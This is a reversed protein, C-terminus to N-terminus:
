LKPLLLTMGPLGLATEMHRYDLHSTLFDKIARHPGCNYGSADDQYFTDHVILPAHPYRKHIAKLERLVSAYEHDGDLFFFPRVVSYDRAYALSTTVGDGLLQTISSLHRILEGRRQGPQEVHEVDPPLDVTVIQTPLDFARATEYWIRASKGVHTGWEFLYDPRTYVLAAVMFVLESLPFPHYSVVPLLKKSVFESTEWMNVEFQNGQPIFPTHSRFSKQRSFIGM